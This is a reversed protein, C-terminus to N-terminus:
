FGEYLLDIDKNCALDKKSMKLSPKQIQSREVIKAHKNNESLFRYNAIEWIKENKLDYKGGHFEATLTHKCSLSSLYQIFRNFYYRLASTRNCSCGLTLTPTKGRENISRKTYYYLNREQAIWYLVSGKKATRGIYVLVPEARSQAIQEQLASRGIVKDSM